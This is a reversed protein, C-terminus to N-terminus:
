VETDGIFADCAPCYWDAAFDYNPRDKWDDTQELRTRCPTHRVNSPSRPPHREPGFREAGSWNEDKARLNNCTEVTDWRSGCNSCRWETTISAFGALRVRTEIADAVLADVEKRKTCVPCKM